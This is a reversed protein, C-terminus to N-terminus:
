ERVRRQGTMWRMATILDGEHGGDFITVRTPGAVRRVLIRHTRGQEDPAAARDAPSILQQETMAAIEEASFRVEGRGQLEALLNFAHLSHSIPVSGNHSHGDTIGANIDLPLGKAGALHTLPSRQRYEVAVQASTGPAGGCVQVLHQAYNQKRAVSEGHWAALDSIPVWASAAAWLEPHRGAMILTMHGGGSAGTVYRRRPDIKTQSEIWRVADVVDQVALESACAEPRFNQGRFDPHILVWGLRQCEQACIPAFSDQDVNGSWTHLLVLLPAPETLKEPVFYRVNQGSGDRTSNIVAARIVPATATDDAPLTTPVIVLLLFAMTLWHPNFM